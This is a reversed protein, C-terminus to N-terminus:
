SEEKKDKVIAEITTDLWKDFDGYVYTIAQKAADNLLSKATEVAENKAEIQAEKTFSDSKKLSDVYTQSVYTVIMSLTEQATDVYSNIRSEKNLSSESQLKDVLGNVYNKILVVIAPVCGIIVMYLLDMLISQINM